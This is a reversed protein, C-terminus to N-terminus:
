CDVQPSVVSPSQSFHPLSQYFDLKLREVYTMADKMIVSFCTSCSYHRVALCLGIVVASLPISHQM